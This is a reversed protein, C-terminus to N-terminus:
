KFQFSQIIKKVYEWLEENVRGVNTCVSFHWQPFYYGRANGDLEYVTEKFDETNLYFRVDGTPEIMAGGQDSIIEFYTHMGQDLYVRYTRVKYGVDNFDDKKWLTIGVPVQLSINLYEDWIHLTMFEQESLSKYGDIDISPKGICVSELFETIIQVNADFEEKLMILYISCKGEIDQVIGEYYTSMINGHHPKGEWTRYKWTGQTGDCFVFPKVVLTSFDDSYYEMFDKEGACVTITFFDNEGDEMGTGLFEVALNDMKETKEQLIEGVYMYDYVPTLLYRWDDPINAGFFFDNGLLFAHRGTTIETTSQSSKESLGYQSQISPEVGGGEQKEMRQKAVITGLVSTITALYGLSTEAKPLACANCSLLLCLLIALKRKIYYKLAKNKM